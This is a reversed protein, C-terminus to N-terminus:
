TKGKDTLVREARCSLVAFLLACLGELSSEVNQTEHEAQQCWAEPSKCYKSSATSALTQPGRIEQKATHAADDRDEHLWLLTEASRTKACAHLRM